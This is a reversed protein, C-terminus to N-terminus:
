SNTKKEQYSPTSRTSIGQFIGKTVLSRRRRDEAIKETFPIGGEATDNELEAARLCHLVNPSNSTGM